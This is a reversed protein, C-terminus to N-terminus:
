LRGIFVCYRMESRIRLFDPNLISCIGHDGTWCSIDVCPLPIFIAVMLFISKCIIVFVTKDSTEGGSKAEQYSELLPDESLDILSKVKYLSNGSTTPIYITTM